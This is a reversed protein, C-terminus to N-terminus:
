ILEDSANVLQLLRMKEDRDIRYIEPTVNGFLYGQIYEVGMQYAQTTSIRSEVDFGELVIKSTSYLRKRILEIVYKITIDSFGQHIIDADIKVHNFQLRILRYISAHGVGFDDIAFSVRFQSIYQDMKHSFQELPTSFHNDPELDPLPKKESLELIIYRGPLVEDIVKKMTNFYVTRLLSDPYLNISVQRLDEARRFGQKSKFNESFRTAGHYLFYSDLEVEFKPGWLEAAEFLDKPVKRTEPDRALAEWSDIQLYQPHIYFVPQFFVTMQNLRKKFLEFRRDYLSVPIFGYAQKLGDIIAGKLADVRHPLYLKSLSYLTSIMHGFPDGLYPFEPDVGCIVLIEHTGKKLPIAIIVKHSSDTQYLHYMGHYYLNFISEKDANSLVKPIIEEMYDNLTRNPITYNTHSRILWKDGDQRSSRELDRVQLIFTFEANAVKEIVDLTSREVDISPNNFIEDLQEVILNYFDVYRDLANELPTFEIKPYSVKKLRRNIDEVDIVAGPKSLVVRGFSHGYQGFTQDSIKSSLYPLLSNLTVEGSDYEIAEGRLGNLIHHTFLSNALDTREGSPEYDHSSLLAIRGISKQFFSSEIFPRYSHIKASSPTFSGSFCSDLIFVVHEAESQLFIEDHLFHMSIGQIPFDKVYDVNVDQSAIYTGGRSESSFAHGSFYVFIL